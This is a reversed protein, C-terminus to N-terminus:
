KLINDQCEGPLVSVFSLTFSLNPYDRGMEPKFCADGPYLDSTNGGIQWYAKHCQALFIGDNWLATHVGNDTLL